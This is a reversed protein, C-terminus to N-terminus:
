STTVIGVAFPALYLLGGAPVSEIRAPGFGTALDVVRFAAGALEAPLQVSVPTSSKSGVLLKRAGGAAATYAQAYAPAAAPTTVTQVVLDSFPALEEIILKLAWYRATGSGDTWNLMAVSPYQPELLDRAGNDRRTINLSPYGVLQSMGVVDLGM